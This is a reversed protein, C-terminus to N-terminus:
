WHRSLHVAPNIIGVLSYTQPDNAEITNFGRNSIVALNLGTSLTNHPSENMMANTHSLPVFGFTCRWFPRCIDPQPQQPVIASSSEWATLALLILFDLNMPLTM